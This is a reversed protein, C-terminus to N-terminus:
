SVIYIGRTGQMNEWLWALKTKPFEQTKTQKM